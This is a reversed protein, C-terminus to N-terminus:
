SRELQRECIFLTSFTQEVGIVTLNFRNSICQVGATVRNKAKTKVRNEYEYEYLLVRNTIATENSDVVSSCFELLNKHNIATMM